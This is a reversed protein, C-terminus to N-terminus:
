DNHFRALIDPPVEEQTYKEGSLWKGSKWQGVWVDGYAQLMAGYGHRYGNEWQGVYKDGTMRSSTGLGHYRGHKFEGVYRFADEHEYSGECNHWTNPDYIGPCEPFAAVSNVHLLLLVFLCLNRFM